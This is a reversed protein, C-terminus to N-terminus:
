LLHRLGFRRRQKGFFIIGPHSNAEHHDRDAHEQHGSAFTRIRIHEIFILDVAEAPDSYCGDEYECTEDDLDIRDEPLRLRNSFSMQYCFFYETLRYM